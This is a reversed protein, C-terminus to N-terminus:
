YVKRPFLLYILLFVLLLSLVTWVFGCGAYPRNYYNWFRRHRPDTPAAEATEDPPLETPPVAM